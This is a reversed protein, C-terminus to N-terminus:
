GRSSAVRDLRGVLDNAEAILVPPGHRDLRRGAPSSLPQLDHGTGVLCLTGECGGAPLTLGVERIGRHVDLLEDCVRTVDLDLHERVVVAVDDVEALPVAGDLPAM